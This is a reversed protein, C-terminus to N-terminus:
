KAWPAKTVEVGRSGVSGSTGSVNNDRGSSGREAIRAGARPMVIPMDDGWCWGGIWLGQVVVRKGVVEGMFMKRLGNHPKVWNPM